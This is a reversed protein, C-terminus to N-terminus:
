KHHLLLTLESKFCESLWIAPLISSIDSVPKLFFLYLSTLNYWDAHSLRLSFITIVYDEYHVACIWTILWAVNRKVVKFDFTEVNLLLPIVKIMFKLIKRFVFFDNSHGMCWFASSITVILWCEEKTRSLRSVFRVVKLNKFVWINFPTINKVFYNLPQVVENCRM